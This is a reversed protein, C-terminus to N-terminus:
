TLPWCPPLPPLRAGHWEVSSRRNRRDAKDLARIAGAEGVPTRLTVRTPASVASGPCRAIRAPDAPLARIGCVTTRSGATRRPYDREIPCVSPLDPPNRLEGFDPRRYHQRLIPHRTGTPAADVRLRYERAPPRCMSGSGPGGSRVCQRSLPRRGHCRNDYPSRRGTSGRVSKGVSPSSLSTARHEMPKPPM